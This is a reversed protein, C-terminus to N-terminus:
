RCWVPLGMVAVVAVLSCEQGRSGWEPRATLEQRQSARVWGGRGGEGEGEEQEWGPLCPLLPDRTLTENWM